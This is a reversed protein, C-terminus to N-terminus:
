VLWAPNKGIQEANRAKNVRNAAIVVEDWEVPIGDLWYHGGDEKLRADLALRVPNLLLNGFKGHLVDEIEQEEPTQRKVIPKPTKARIPRLKPTGTIKRYEVKM